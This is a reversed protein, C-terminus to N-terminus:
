YPNGPTFYMLGMGYFVCYLMSHRLLRVAHSLIFHDEFDIFSNVFKISVIKDYPLSFTIFTVFSNRLNKNESISNIVCKYFYKSPRFFTICSNAGLDDWAWEYIKYAVVVPNM